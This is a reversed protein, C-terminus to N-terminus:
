NAEEAEEATDATEDDPVYLLVMGEDSVKIVNAKNFMFDARDLADIRADGIDELPNDVMAENTYREKKAELQDLAEKRMAPLWFRPANARVAHAVDMLLHESEYGDEEANPLDLLNGRMKEIGESLAAQVGDRAKSYDELCDSIRKREHEIRKASFDKDYQMSAQEAAILVRFAADAERERARFAKINERLQGEKM